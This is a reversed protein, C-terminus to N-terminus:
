AAATKKRSKVRTRARARTSAWYPKEERAYRRIILQEEEHERSYIMLPAIETRVQDLVYSAADIQEAGAAHMRIALDARSTSALLVETALAWQMEAPKPAAEAQRVPAAAPKEDGGLMGTLAAPAPLGFRGAFWGIVLEQMAGRLWAMALEARRGFGAVLSASTADIRSFDAENANLALFNM